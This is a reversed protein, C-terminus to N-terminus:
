PTGGARLLSLHRHTDRVESTTSHEEDITAGDVDLLRRLAVDARVGSADETVEIAEALQAARGELRRGEVGRLESRRRRGGALDHRDPQVVPRVCLLHAELRGSIGAANM